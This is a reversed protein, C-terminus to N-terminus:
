QAGEKSNQIEMLASYFENQFEEQSINPNGNLIGEVATQLMANVEDEKMGTTMMNTKEQEVINQIFQADVPAAQMSTNQIPVAQQAQPMQQETPQMNTAAQQAQPMQQEAPQPNMAAEAQTLQAQLAAVNLKQNLENIQKQNQITQKDFLGPMAKNAAIIIESGAATPNYQALAGLQDLREIPSFVSADQTDTEFEMRDLMFIDDATIEVFDDIEASYLRYTTNSSKLEEYCMKLYKRSLNEFSQKIWFLKNDIRGMAADRLAQFHSGSYVGKENNGQMGRQIGSLSEMNANTESISQSFIGANSINNTIVQAAQGTASLAFLFGPRMPSIGSRTGKGLISDAVDAPVGIVPFLDSAIKYDEQSARKNIILQSEFMNDVESIGWWGRPPVYTRFVEIPLVPFSKTDEQSNNNYALTDGKDNMIVRSWTGDSEKLWYEKLDYNKYDEYDKGINLFGKVRSGYQAKIDIGKMTVKRIVWDIDSWDEVEPNAWLRENKEIVFDFPPKGEGRDKRTIIVPADGDVIIKGYLINIVREKEHFFFTLLANLKTVIDDYKSNPESTPNVVYTTPKLSNFLGRETEIIPFTMNIVRHPFDSPINDDGSFTWVENGNADYRKPLMTSDISWGENKKSYSLWQNGLYFQQFIRVNTKKQEWTLGEIEGGCQKDIYNIHDKIDSGIQLPKTIKDSQSM